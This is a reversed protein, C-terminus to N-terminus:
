KKKLLGHPRVLLFIILLGFAVAEKWESSIKWVSLNEVFGLMYAGLVAGPMSGIAGIISAIAAKLLLNMGMTPELGIDLSVLIGALGAM